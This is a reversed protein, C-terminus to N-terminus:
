LEISVKCNIAHGLLSATVYDDGGMRSASRVTVKGRTGIAVMYRENLLIHEEGNTATVWYESGIWDSREIILGAALMNNVVRQQPKTPRGGTRASRAIRPTETICNTCTWIAEFNGGAYASDATYMNNGCDCYIKRTIAANM